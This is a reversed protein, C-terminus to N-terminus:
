QRRCEGGGPRPKVSFMKKQKTSLVLIPFDVSKRILVLISSMTTPGYLPTLTSAHYMKAM